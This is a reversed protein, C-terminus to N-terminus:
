IKLSARRVRAHARTKVQPRVRKIKRSDTRHLPAAVIQNAWPPNGNYYLTDPDIDVDNPWALTQGIPDVFVAAFMRPDNRIPEFVPGDLYPGLDIDRETDDTFTVHVVFGAVPKVTRVRVLEPYKPHTIITM